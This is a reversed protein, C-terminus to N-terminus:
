LRGSLISLLLFRVDKSAPKKTRDGYFVAEKVNRSGATTPHLPCGLGVQIDQLDQLKEESV